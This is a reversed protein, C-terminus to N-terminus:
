PCTKELFLLSEVGSPSDGMTNLFFEERYFCCISM